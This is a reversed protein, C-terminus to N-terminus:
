AEQYPVLLLGGHSSSGSDRVFKWPGLPTRAMSTRSYICPGSHFKVPVTTSSKVLLNWSQLINELSSKLCRYWWIIRWGSRLATAVNLVGHPFMLGLPSMNPAFDEWSRNSSAMKRIWQSIGFHRFWLSSIRIPPQVSSSWLLVTRLRALSKQCWM